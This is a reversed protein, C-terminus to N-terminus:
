AIYAVNPTGVSALVMDASFAREAIWVRTEVAMCAPNDFNGAAVRDGRRRKTCAALLAISTACPAPASVANASHSETRCVIGNVSHSVCQCVYVASDCALAWEVALAWLSAVKCESVALLARTVGFSHM